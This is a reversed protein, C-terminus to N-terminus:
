VVGDGYVTFITVAAACRSSYPVFVWTMAAVLFMSTHTLGSSLPSGPPARLGRYSDEASPLVKPLGFDRGM